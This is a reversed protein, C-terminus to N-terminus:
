SVLSLYLDQHKKAQIEPNFEREAVARLHPYSGKNKFAKQIADFMASAKTEEALQGAEFKGVVEKVGGIPFGLIPIGCAISEVMTNPLNDELSTLLTFDCANYVINLLREDRIEGLQNVGCQELKENERGVAVIEIDTQSLRNCLEILLNGGKRKNELSQSIVLLRKKSPNLGLVESALEKQIPFFIELPVCNYIVTHPYDKLLESQESQEKLWESPTVIHIPNKFKSYAKKKELFVKRNIEKLHQNSNEDNQYHFIGKFPNMDHLTWVVPTSVKALFKQLDVFDSIWHLHVLHGNVWNEVTYQTENFSLKEYNGPISHTSGKKKFVRNLILRVLSVPKKPVVKEWDNRLNGESKLFRIQTPIKDLAAALRRAAIGAGGFDSTSILDVRLNETHEKHIM